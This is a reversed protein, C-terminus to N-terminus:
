PSSLFVGIPATLSAIVMATPASVLTAKSILLAPTSQPPHGLIGWPLVM